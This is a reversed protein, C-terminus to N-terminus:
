GHEKWFKYEVDKDSVRLCADRLAKGAADPGCYYVGAKVTKKHDSKYGDDVLEQALARLERAFDPRGHNMEGQFQAATITASSTDSVSAADWEASLKEENISNNSSWICQDVVRIPVKELRVPDLQKTIFLRTRLIPWRQENGLAMSQAELLTIQEHLWKYHLIDKCVWIFELRKLRSKASAEANNRLHWISKLISAWPTVGIGAGVMVSVENRFIDEAPSGYPGDIRIRPFTQGKKLRLEQIGTSDIRILQYHDEKTDFADAFTGTFDGLQQIHVSVYPDEPCSSITFPHWQNAMIDSFKVFLWQGAKYDMGEKEFRIEILQSPHRFVAVVKADKRSRYFRYVREALYITVPFLEWRFSQYGICHEWFVKGAFPSYPNTSDRVFCGTGHCLLALYFIIFLHHIYWFGEYSQRRIKAHASTFMLLMCLLMIHGTIGGPITYHLQVATMPRLM